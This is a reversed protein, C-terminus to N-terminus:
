EKFTYRAFGHSSAERALSNGAGGPFQDQTVPIRGAVDDHHGGRHPIQVKTVRPLEEGIDPRAALIEPMMIREDRWQGVILRSDLAEIALIWQDVAGVIKGVMTKM